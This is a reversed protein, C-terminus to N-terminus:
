GIKLRVFAMGGWRDGGYAADLGAPVFSRAAQVGIGIVRSQGFRVDRIVGLSVKGVTFPDGHVDGPNPLLEDNETVEGRAFLTWPADFRLSSEIVGANLPHRDEGPEHARRQGWALTSSWRGETGFPITVLASASLRTQDTQPELQEPSRLFAWSAQLSLQPIPNWSLRAATSDFTPAEIDYRFQDPERGSFRSAELKWNGQVLGITAVGYTIHTSDLWHHSIPAEPSDLIAARHMFAPPGFAPEGPLGLYVFASSRAGIPVSLSASLEMFLDHPHQRDTLQTVGDATEGSALLLPYGSKGMLPEPSLMARLQLRTRGIERQAMGMVMGALFGKSAGRPGGQDSYVLQLNAHGMLMWDGAMSHLGDHRELDPQWSTGSAERSAPFAGLAAPMMHTGAAMGGHDM